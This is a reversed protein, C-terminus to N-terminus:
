CGGGPIYLGVSWCHPCACAFMMYLEKHGLGKAVGNEIRVIEIFYRKNM